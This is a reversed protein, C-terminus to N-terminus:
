QLSFPIISGSDNVRNFVFSKISSHIPVIRNKGAATKSGGKFTWSKLDINAPDMKIVENIRWGSYCLILITDVWPDNKHNWLMTLEAKTFPVGPQDDDKVTIKAFTSYSKDIIDNELAYRDM